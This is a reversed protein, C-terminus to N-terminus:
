ANRRERAFFALGVALPLLSGVLLKVEYFAVNTVDSGPVFASVIGAGSVALGVGCAVRKWAPEDSLRIVGLFM